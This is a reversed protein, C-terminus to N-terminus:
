DFCGTWLRLLLLWDLVHIRRRFDVPDHLVFLLLAAAVVALRFGIVARRVLLSCDFSRRGPTGVRGSEDRGQLRAGRRDPLSM